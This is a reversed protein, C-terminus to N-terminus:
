LASETDAGGVFVPTGPPLGTAAAAAPTVSGARAGPARLPPLIAPPIDLTDLIEASWECRSVDYLMSEGANSHEALREGTLLFTIWDNLMLLTAVRAGDHHKRFWLYRALPFIYPPVHGTIAHLRQLPIK